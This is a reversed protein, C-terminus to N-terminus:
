TRRGGGPEADARVRDSEGEFSTGFSGLHICTQSLSVRSIFRQGGGPRSTPKVGVLPSTSPRAGSAVVAKYRRQIEEYYERDLLEIHTRVGTRAYHGIYNSVFTRQADLGNAAASAGAAAPAASANEGAGGSARQGASASSRSNSAPAASLPSSLSSGGAGATTSLKRQLADGMIGKRGSALNRTRSLLALPDLPVPALANPSILGSKKRYLKSVACSSSPLLTAIM